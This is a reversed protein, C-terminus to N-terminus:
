NTISERKQAARHASVRPVLVSCNKLALASILPVPAGRHKSFHRKDHGYIVSRSGCRPVDVYLLGKMSFVERHWVVCLYAQQQQFSPIVVPKQQKLHATWSPPPQLRVGQLLLYDTHPSGHDPAGAVQGEGTLRLLPLCYSVISGEAGTDSFSMCSIYRQVVEPLVGEALGSSTSALLLRSSSRVVSVAPGPHPLGAGTRRSAAHERRSWFRHNRGEGGDLQSVSIPRRCVPLLPARCTGGHWAQGSAPAAPETGGGLGRRGAGRRAPAEGGGQGVASPAQGGAPCARRAARKHWCSRSGGSRSRWGSRCPSRVSQPSGRRAGAKGASGRLPPPCASPQGPALPCPWGAAMRQQHCPEPPPPGHRPSLRWGLVRYTTSLGPVATGRPAPPRLASGRWTEGQQCSVMERHHASRGGEWHSRACRPISPACSKKM